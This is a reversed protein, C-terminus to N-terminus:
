KGFFAFLVAAIIAWLYYTGAKGGKGGMASSLLVHSLRQLPLSQVWVIGPGSVTAYFLGEGGVLSRWLSGIYKLDYRVTNSLGVLCGTDIKLSQGALLEIRELAGTAQIFVMGKGTIKQMIFGEGGLLGVRIKKQMAIQIAQGPQGALFAGKQCIVTGGVENLNIPVITGPSSAAISLLAPKLSPNTFVSSFMSEGALSRRFGKWLKFGGKSGDGLMSDMQVQNGMYMLSGQEAVLSQGPELLIRIYQLDNGHISYNLNSM